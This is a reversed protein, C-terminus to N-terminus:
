QEASLLATAEKGFVPDASLADVAQRGREGGVRLIARILHIRTGGRSDDSLLPLMDDLDEARASAALAVALGETADRGTAEVYLDRLRRWYVGAPPVALARALGETVRDPYGGREVHAMLVPLADPYPESTNVLDWVSRVAVGAGRLDEIIPRESARWESATAQLQADRVAAADQFERDLALQAMLEGATMGSSRKKDRTM